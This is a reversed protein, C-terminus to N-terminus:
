PTPSASATPSPSVTPTPSPSITPTATPLPTATPTPTAGGGRVLSGIPSTQATARQPLSFPNRVNTGPNSGGVTVITAMIGLAVLAAAAGAFFAWRLGRGERLWETRRRRELEPSLKTRANLWAMFPASAYVVGQWALLLVLFWNGIHGLVVAVGSGWLLLALITETRASWLASLMRSHENEKPTRMFVGEKRLLGQVVAMAVTWSMSLWNMFALLARKLGIGTRHRLSWVARVLGSIILAAPLLVAAGYLPRLEIHGQTLLLGATVLLVVTFGLYALDNLWQLCGMLYDTRQALTLRNNPDRNWPALDRWHKRLIQMGGFCWRFRQSKLAAFTLPMIGWGFSKPVYVGSYGRMLLRLSTEADETICWEDWGGLDELASKRLLGMTGAFIISNRDNRSPMTTTFFYKYADYCATLYPDSKWDRYDQPSQVFAVNPDAFYGVMSTLYVPDVVYDADIVGVIEARPDTYERLVLNLAGSKYGDLEDLHVFKVRERNQCYEYVPQWVDRDKTNNDIVVVEFAPYDIAEVSKITELLMDSPENYAAIHLSVFPRHNPDPSPIHRQLRTRCVMDISEFGFSCTLILAVIELLLLVASAAMGAISLGSAFTIWTAFALYALVAAILCGFFVQGIPNWVPRAAAIVLSIAVVLLEAALVYGPPVRWIRDVIEGAGVAVAVALVVGLIRSSFRIRHGLLLLLATALILTAFCTLFVSILV